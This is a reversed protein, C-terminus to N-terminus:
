TIPFGLLCACESGAGIASVNTQHILRFTLTHRPSKSLSCRDQGNETAQQSNDVHNLSSNCAPFNKVHRERCCVLYLVNEYQVDIFMPQLEASLVLNECLAVFLVLIM